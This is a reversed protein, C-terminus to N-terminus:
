PLRRRLRELGANLRSKVTGISTGTAAAVQRLSLGGTYHLVVVERLPASLGAVAENVLRAREAREAIAVPDRDTGARALAEDDDFLPVHAPPRRAQHDLYARYAITLLWARDDRLRPREGLHKWVRVAVDQFVDEADHGNGCLRRLMGLAGAGHRDVLALFTERDTAMDCENGVRTSTRPADCGGTSQEEVPLVPSEQLINSRERRIKPRLVLMAM